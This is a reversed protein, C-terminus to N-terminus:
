FNYVSSAIFVKIHNKAWVGKNIYLIDILNM